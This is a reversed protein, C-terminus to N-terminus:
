RVDGAGSERVAKRVFGRATTYQRTTNISIWRAIPYNGAWPFVGVELLQADDLADILRLVRKSGRKLRNRITTYPLGRAKRVIDANLRPTESWGFGRAPTVPKSGRRGAEVWQAVHETWWLRVALLDKVTWDDVAHLKAVGPGARDLETELKAFTSTVSDVLDERSTPIPM